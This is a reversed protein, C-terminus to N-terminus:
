TARAVLTRVEPASTDVSKSCSVESFRHEAVSFRGSLYREEVRYDIESIGSADALRKKPLRTGSKTGSTDSNRKTKRIPLYDWVIELVRLIEEQSELSIESLIRPGEKFFYTGGSIWRLASTGAHSWSYAIM